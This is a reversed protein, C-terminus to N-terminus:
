NMIQIIQYVIYGILALDLFVFLWSLRFNRKEKRNQEIEANSKVEEM